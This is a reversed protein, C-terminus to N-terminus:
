KQVMCQPATFMILLTERLRQDRADLAREETRGDNYDHISSIGDIIIERPDTQANGTARAKFWGDCVYLDYVDVMAATAQRIANENDFTSDLESITGDNNTDMVSMYADYAPPLDTLVIRPGDTDHVAAYGRPGNTGRTFAFSNFHNYYNTAISANMHQLEPAVLGAQAIPGAPSFNPLFWNFVTPAALPGQGYSSSQSDVTSNSMSIRKVDNEFYSLETASLGHASLSSIPYEAENNYEADMLRFMSMTRVLPEQVRGYGIIQAKDLNRAEPDLLIAKVTAGLDGGSESFTTSVRYIYGSSPNSTVLRQILRYSIFPATNPHDSLIGMIQALDEEGTQGAPFTEGLVIKEGQDRVIEYDRDSPDYGNDDFSKMPEVMYPHYKQSRSQMKYEFETNQVSGLSSGDGVAQVSYSWGTFVRALETIDTQTYSQIPLGDSDLKILYDPHREILGISFLQM